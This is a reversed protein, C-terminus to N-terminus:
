SIQRRAGFATTDLTHCEQHFGYGGEREKKMESDTSQRSCGKPKRQDMWETSLDANGKKKKKLCGGLM